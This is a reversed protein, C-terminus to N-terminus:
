RNIKRFALPTMGTEEKFARHFTNVAAFGCELAISTVSQERNKVLKEKAASIRYFTLLRRFHIGTVSHLAYSLYKENYGFRKALDSLVIEESFHEAVYSIVKQFLNGDNQKTELFAANKLVKACILNLYGSVTCLDRPNLLHFRDLILSLEEAEIARPVYYRNRAEKFYLPILDASFVACVVEAEECDYQHVYNPPLWVFEKERLLIVEGNVTVIGSGKRCYLCESYEHINAQIRWGFHERCRFDLEGNFNESQYRM